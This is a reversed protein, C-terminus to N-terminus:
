ARVYQNWKYAAVMLAKEFAGKWTKTNFWYSPKPFAKIKGNKVDMWRGLYLPLGDKSIPGMGTFGSKQLKADIFAVLPTILPAVSNPNVVKGLINM